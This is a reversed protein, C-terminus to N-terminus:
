KKKKKLTDFCANMLIRFLYTSFKSDFRYNGIGRYLKIFVTQVADEADQRQGLIRQATHLLSQSYRDYIMKFAGLDQKQCRLVIQRENM